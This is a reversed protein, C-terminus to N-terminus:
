GECNRRVSAAFGSEKQIMVQNRNTSMTSVATPVKKRPGPQDQTQNQNTVAWGPIFATRGQQNYQDYQISAIINDNPTPQFTLKGNFRPSIQRTIAILRHSM